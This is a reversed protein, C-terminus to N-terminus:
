NLLGLHVARSLAENRNRAGLKDYIHALHTKVTALTVFLASAIERNSRGAALLTLVERERHTLRGADDPVPASIEEVGLAMRLAPAIVVERRCIAHVAVLLDDPVISRMLIADTGLALLEVLDARSASTVLAVTLMSRRVIKIRRVVDVLREPGAGIVVLQTHELRPLVERGHEVTTVLVGEAELVAAIGARVLALEDAM